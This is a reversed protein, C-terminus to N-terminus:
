GNQKTKYEEIKAQLEEIYGAIMNGATNWTLQYNKKADQSIKSEACPNFKAKHAVVFSTLADYEKSQNYLIEGIHKKAM